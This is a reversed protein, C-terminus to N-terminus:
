QSAKRTKGVRGLFYAVTGGVIGAVLFDFEPIVLYFVPGLITGAALALYDVRMRAASFLSVFFFTPTIFVLCTALITPLYGALHYGIAVVVLMTTWFTSAAGLLWALRETRAMSPLARNALVWVSIAVFYSLLYLIWVPTGPSNVQPLMSVVMPLLRVATLTVAVVITLPAAGEELLSVLVVQGPLAWVIGTMLMAHFIELQSNGVLAGFGLFSVSLVLFEFSIVQGMGKVYAAWNFRYQAM